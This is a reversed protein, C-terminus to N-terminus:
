SKEEEQMDRIIQALLDFAIGGRIKWAGSLQKELLLVSRNGRDLMIDFEATM